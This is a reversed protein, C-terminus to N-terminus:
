IKVKRREGKKLSISQGRYKFSTDKWAYLTARGTGDKVEGSVNVGLLTRINGFRVTGSWPICSALDLDNWWTSVTTELLAQAFLGHTTIYYSLNNGTSEYFQILDPDAYQRPLIMSWDKRWGEVDKMRASALIFEGLTHGIFRSESAGAAIEYRLEHAKRTPEDPRSGLPTHALPFLQDPHKQKGFDKLNHGIHNQYVGNEAVLPSLALGDNLVERMRNDTDLGYEIAKQLAFQASVLGSFYDAKDVDGSEDLSISPVLHLHWFGDSGKELGQLYFTAAQEILPRAYTTSWEPDNAMVATQDAMRVMLASNYVPYYYNNPVGPDHYGFASGYPFVHPMFIGERNYFRKTYEKLGEIRSHWFEIWKKAANIQGAWLLLPHRCGSDFPFPFPWANGALGTPPSCGIGDDNHSYLTYALSRVWIKQAAEDPLDLWGCHEWTTHWWSKTQQFSEDASLNISGNVSILIDNKGPQLSIKVGGELTEMKSTSRVNVKSKTNHYNIEAQWLDQQLRSEIDPTILQDYILPFRHLPSLIIAPCNGEAQIQFGAIDRQLPDFWTVITIEFGSTKFHTTVTGDFFSQYQHYADTTAPETEWYINAIPLLYDANYKGRTFHQMHTFQMAGPVSYSVSKGPSAHLGWPGFCSGFRGNAQYLPIWTEKELPPKKRQIDGRELVGKIDPVVMTENGGHGMKMKQDAFVELGPLSVLGLTNSLFRRRKM